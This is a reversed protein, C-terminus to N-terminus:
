RVLSHHGDIHWLSNPSQVSYRRRQAVASWRSAVGQPDIEAVLKRVRARTVYIPPQRTKLFARVEEYGANPHGEVYERIIGELNEDSTGFEVKPSVIGNRQM